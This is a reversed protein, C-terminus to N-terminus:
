KKKKAAKKAARKPSAEKSIEKWQAKLEKALAEAEKTNVTKLKKYKTAVTDVIRKYDVEDINKMAEMKELVEGKAKLTWGKVKKRNKAANKSGYLFYAGAATAAALAVLGLGNSSKKKTTKRKATKKKTAM